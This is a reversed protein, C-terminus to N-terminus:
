TTEVLLERSSEAAQKRKDTKPAGLDRGLTVLLLNALLRMKISLNSLFLGYRENDGIQTLSQTVARSEVGGGGLSSDNHFIDKLIIQLWRSPALVNTGRSFQGIRRGKNKVCKENKVSKAM